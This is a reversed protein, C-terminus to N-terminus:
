APRARARRGGQRGDGRPLSLVSRGLRPAAGQALPAPRSRAPRGAHAGVRPRGGLAREPGRGDRRRGLRVARRPSGHDAEFLVLDVDPRLGAGELLRRQARVLDLDQAALRNRGLALEVDALAIVFAPLPLRVSVQRLRRQAADLRGRAVDVKAMGRRAGASARPGARARRPLGRARRGRGRRGAALDGLLTQVFAENELTGGGASVALRMAEIAGPLDGQLERFYSVRSYSDLNPKRDVMEQLSRRAAAYRGLEVQADVVVAFPRVAQPALRRARLGYRLGAASTTARWRSRAPASRPPSNTPTVGCRRASPAARCAPVPWPGGDRARASSLRRGAHRLRGGKRARGAGAGSARRDAGPHRASPPRSGRATPVGAVRELDSGGNLLSFAALAVLFVVAVGCALLPARRAGRRDTSVSRHSGVIGRTRVPPHSPETRGPAENGSTPAALYPFTDLFPKDNRDVGDGLPVKNDKLFGAVVQLEIDVVDDGLRRGNPFGATDGGIVGFRNEAGAAPPTGLNLKLTDVAPVKGAAFGKHQNLDPLGQLLAQM